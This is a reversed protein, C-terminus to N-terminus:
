EKWALIEFSSLFLVPKKTEPMLVAANM